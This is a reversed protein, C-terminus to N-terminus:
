NVMYTRWRENCFLSKVGHLMIQFSVRMAYITLAVLNLVFWRKTAAIIPPTMSVFTAMTSEAARYVHDAVHMTALVGDIAPLPNQTMSTEHADATNKM